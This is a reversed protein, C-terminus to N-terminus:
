ALKWHLMRDWIVVIPRHQLEAAEFQTMANFPFIHHDCGDSDTQSHWKVREVDLMIGGQGIHVFPLRILM